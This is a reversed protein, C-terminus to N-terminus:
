EDGKPLVLSAFCLFAASYLVLYILVDGIV